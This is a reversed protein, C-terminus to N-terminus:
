RWRRPESSARVVNVDPRALVAELATLNVPVDDVALVDVAVNSVASPSTM